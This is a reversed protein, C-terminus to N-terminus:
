FRLNRRECRNEMAVIPRHLRQVAAFQENIDFFLSRCRQCFRFIAFFIAKKKVFAFFTPIILLMFPM